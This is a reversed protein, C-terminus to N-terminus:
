PLALGVYRLLDPSAAAFQRLFEDMKCRLRALEDALRHHHVVDQRLWRWLKEIPNLWSAYTPLPVFQIPLALAGWQTTASASPEQPWNGPTRFLHRRAQPELAVLLDPHYHVPWNDLVIYITRANPYAARVDRYFRVLEAVTTHSSRRFTVRGTGHALGAVYRTQTNAAHSREALPQDGGRAAYAFSVTPQRYITVEDQYILVKEGSAAGVEIILRDIDARKAEYERDPSHVHDRGRKRGIDLRDLLSHVGGPTLDRMWDCAERLMDLTWRAQDFGFLGPDRAIINCV